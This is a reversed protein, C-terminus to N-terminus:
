RGPSTRPMKARPELNAQIEFKLKKNKSKKRPKIVKKIPTTENGSVNTAGFDDELKNVELSSKHFM